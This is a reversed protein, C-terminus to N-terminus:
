SAIVKKPLTFMSNEEEIRDDKVPINLFKMRDAQVDSICKLIIETSILLRGKAAVLTIEM